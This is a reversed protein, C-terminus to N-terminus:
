KAAADAAALKERQEKKAQSESQVSEVDSIDEVVPVARARTPIVIKKPGAPRPTATRKIEDKEEEEDYYEESDYEEMGEDLVSGKKKCCDKVKLWLAMAKARYAWYYFKRWRYYYRIRFFSSRGSEYIIFAFHVCTFIFLIAIYMSGFSHRWNPDIVFDTFYMLMYLILVITCENFVAMNNAFRSELPSSYKILIVLGVSFIYQFVIQGWFFNQWMALTLSLVMRRLFFISQWIMLSVEHEKDHRVGEFFSGAKEIFDEDRWKARNVWFWALMIPPITLCTLFILISVVNSFRIAEFDNDWHMEELNVLSFLCLNLYSEMFIKITWNSVLYNQLEARKEVLIPKDWKKLLLIIILLALGLAFSTTCNFLFGQNNTIFLTSDYGANQFNLSLPPQEPIYFHDALWNDAFKYGTVEEFFETFASVNGPTRADFLRVYQVIQLAEFLAWIKDVPGGILWNLFLSGVIVTALLESNFTGANEVNEVEAADAM